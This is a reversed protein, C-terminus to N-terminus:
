AASGTGADLTTVGETAEPEETPRALIAALNAQEATTLAPGTPAFAVEVPPWGRTM